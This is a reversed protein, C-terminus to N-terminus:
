LDSNDTALRYNNINLEKMIDLLEVIHSFDADDATKIVFEEDADINKLQMWTQLERKKDTSYVRIASPNTDEGNRNDYCEINFSKVYLEIGSESTESNASNPIIQETHKDVTKKTKTAGGIFLPAFVSLLSVCFFVIGCIGPWQRTYNRIAIVLGIISFVLGMLGLIGGIMIVLTYLAFLFEAHFDEDGINSFVFINFCWILLLVTLSIGFGLWAMAQSPKRVSPPTIMVM